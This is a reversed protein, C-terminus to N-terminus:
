ERFYWVIRTVDITIDRYMLHAHDGHRQIRFPLLDEHTFSSHPPTVKPFYLFISDIYERVQREFNAQKYEFILMWIERPLKVIM